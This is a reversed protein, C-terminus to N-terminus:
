KFTTQHIADHNLLEHNYRHQFQFHKKVNHHQHHDLEEHNQVVGNELQDQRV